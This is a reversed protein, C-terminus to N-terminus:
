ISSFVAATTFPCVTVASPLAWTWTQQGAGPLFGFTRTKFDPSPTSRTGRHCAATAWASCAEAWSTAAVSAGSRGRPPRHSRDHSRATHGSSGRREEAGKAAG